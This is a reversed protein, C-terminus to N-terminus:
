TIQLVTHSPWRAAPLSGAAALFHGQIHGPDVLPLLLPLLGSPRHGEQDAVDVPEGAQGQRLGLRCRCWFSSTSIKLLLPVDM